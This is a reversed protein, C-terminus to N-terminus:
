HTKIIKYQIKNKNKTLNKKKGGRKKKEKKRTGKRTHQHRRTDHPLLAATHDPTPHYTTCESECMDGERDGTRGKQRVGM